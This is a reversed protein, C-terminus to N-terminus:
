ETGFTDTNIEQVGAIPALAFLSDPLQPSLEVREYHISAEQKGQPDSLTIEFPFDQGNVQGYEALSVRKIVIGDSTLVQWRRLQLTKQEFWLQQTGGEVLSFELRIWGTGEDFSVTATDRPPPLVPLGLLLSAVERASLMVRTFRAANLPTAAGRYLLKEGPFYAVLTHGNCAVLSAIGIPSFLELRFRDPASVAVAQKATSKEYPDSYVVRALGRLSTLARRRGALLALLEQATPLAEAAQVVASPPPPSSPRRVSCGSFGVVIALLILPLVPFPCIPPGSRLAWLAGQATRLYVGFM